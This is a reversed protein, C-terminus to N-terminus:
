PEVARDAPVAWALLPLASLCVGGAIVFLGTLSWAAGHGATVNGIVRGLGLVSMAYVGQISSRYGPAAVRDLLVPPVVLMVLVQMGHCAQTAIAVVPHVWLGLLLLRAAMVLVGLVVVGRLTWRRVLVAFGLMFLMEVGVGLSAILGVWREGIGVVTEDTLYRPYFAYYAATSLNLLFMGVVFVLMRPRTLARLAAVTPIARVGSAVVARRAGPLVPLTLANVLGLACVGAACVMAACVPAGLHMAAYLVLSPLIFGVTGYVRVRHYAPPQEGAERMREFHGFALGDQLAHVPAYALAFGGFALLLTAFSSAGILGGLSVAALIYIGALLSRTTMRTDALLAGIAPTAIVAVGLMALVQGIQQDTLGSRQLYVPLYPMLSGLVAFALLYQTKIARM